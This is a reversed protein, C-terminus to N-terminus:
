IFCITSLCGEVCAAENRSLPVRGGNWMEIFFRYQAETGREGLECGGDAGREMYRAFVLHLEACIHASEIQAAEDM